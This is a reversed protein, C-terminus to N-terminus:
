VPGSSPFPVYSLGDAMPVKRTVDVIPPKWDDLAIAENMLETVSALTFGSLGIVGPVLNPNVASWAMLYKTTVAGVCDNLYVGSAGDGCLVGASPSKSTLSRVPGYCNPPQPQSHLDGPGGAIAPPGSARM